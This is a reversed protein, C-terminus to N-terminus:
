AYIVAHVHTCRYYYNTRSNVACLENDVFRMRMWVYQNSLFTVAAAADSNLTFYFYSSFFCSMHERNLKYLLLSSTMARVVGTIVAHFMCHTVRLSVWHKYPCLVNSSIIVTPAPSKLTSFWYVHINATRRPLIIVISTENEHESSVSYDATYRIVRDIKTSCLKRSCMFNWRFFFIFHLEMESGIRCVLLYM